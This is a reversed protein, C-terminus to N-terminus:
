GFTFAFLRLAGQVELRLRHNGARRLGVLQYLRSAPATLRGETVDPTDLSRKDDVMVEIQGGSEEPEIVLFVNRAMFGLELTGGEAPVVYEGTMKWTGNLNWEGNRPAREPLYATYTDRVPQPASAFGTTRRYGLYTEPTRATNRGDQASVLGGVTAGAERLLAQIMMESVEYDGEGFHYYRVRGEADIFYKAPWYQNHYARWQKWDNDLVVPWTVGLQRMAREVNAPNKEFEFEPTHVGLIVLGKDAYAQHWAQLYPITRVCNICSYTWFDLLVVKGRLDQLSVPSGQLWPGETVIEPARGYDGLMGSEPNGDGGGAFLDTPAGPDAAVTPTASVQRAKLAERVVGTSEIATLGAGYNPFATLLATQIRRDLGFGVGVGVLIMVAGFGRQIKAMNRALSPIRTLLARGGLMVALMPISTGLTYALTLFVAGGDVRTTLALSIVSAMIPGVCPTWLLGLGLGIPLGSWFGAGGVKRSTPARSAIRSVALEFADRLKPVLMVVGAAVIVAVAVYRILDASVGLARVIATLSLTFFTFSAVFGAIVGLPRARGGGASGALVIPLVPLICPSLITILGALFAFGLLPVM